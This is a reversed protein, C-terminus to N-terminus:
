HLCLTIVNLINSNKKLNNKNIKLFIYLALPPPASLSPSLIGLLSWVTLTFGIHPDFEHVTLDYGSGLDLTLHKVSPAVGAGRFNILKM